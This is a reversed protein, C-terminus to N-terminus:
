KAVREYYNKLLARYELPLERAFNQNLAARNRDGLVKWETRQDKATEGSVFDSIFGASVASESDSGESSDGDGESPSAVPAATELVLAQDVIFHRLKEDALKQHGRLEALESAKFVKVSESLQSAAETLMPHSEGVGSIEALRESLKSQQESLQELLNADVSSAADASSAVDVSATQRLVQKHDSAVALADVLRVLAPDSDAVIEISPLGHLMTIVALLTEANESYVASVLEMTEAASASDGKELAVVVEQMVDVPEIFTAMGTAVLLHRASVQAGSLLKQQRELIRPLDDPNADTTRARLEDQRFQWMATDSVSKHLFAVIEAVYGTQAQIDKVLTQVEALSEAAVDQADVADFKDGSKIAAIADEFDTKAFALPTGVDLRAAVMDLLPSVDGLCRLMNGFQPLVPEMAETESAETLELLDRQEAVIDKMYGNAFGVSRQFLLLDQLLSLRENQAVVIEFAKALADASQEQWEIASDADNKELAQVSQQLWDEAEELQSLFPPLDPDVAVEDQEKLSTVFGALEDVLNQQSEAIDQVPKQEAAALDTKELYGIVRAEYEEISSMRASSAAVLTGLGQTRLGIEVSWREVVLLLNALAEEALIQQELVAPQDGAELKLLAAAMANGSKELLMDVPPVQPLREDFLESRAAPVTPLLMTALQKRLSRQVQAMSDRQAKFETESLDANEIRLQRQVAGLSGVLDRTELLTSYAGSIRVSFEADLLTRVLEAQIVAAKGLEGDGILEQTEKMREVTGADRLDKVSRILRLVALPRLQYRMAAQLDAILKATWDALEIQRESLEQTEDVSQFEIGQWRLSAQVEALMRAERAYVEQAADIGRLMVLSGLDRAATNVASSAAQPGSAMESAAAGSQQRLRDAAQAISTEAIGVLAMRLAELSDGEAVDSVNNAALDDLLVRLQSAIGKLQERVMEQRIAELQCAQAYGETTPELTRVVQHASRQQRYIAQVRSLLRDKQKEIQELYQEKSLFTIRRTESRVVHPGLPEPYRDSVEVVFSVTDGVQLDPVSERYDWDITQSGQGSEVPDELKIPVEDRQNVRYAVTTTGVGHDDQVRVALDLPRGVMAVLNASPQTLEVRPTQDAAVQLFYRPSIFEFDHDKDVWGFHYGKSASVDATFDLTRDDSGIDLDVTEEGDRFFQASRIPRDLVIRWDVGTGEPVTLTLAEISEQERGLYSPYDLSVAVEKIRPAPVVRAQQWDTRDDGAKIRYTFDRSASAITYTCTGDVVDLEIARARGEGTRVYITAQRPVIGGIQATISANEGEKIVLEDQAITIQTYTPYEVNLWPNFFRSFGAALFPGNVVSFIVMVAILLTVLVASRRLPTFPVAQEIRLDSAANEALQCTHERLESSDSLTPTQQRLQVASVLLSNLEGHQSELQLAIAVADFSRLNCWGCRWARYFAVGLIVVLIAVRGTAPMYTMWDIFMGLLFLPIACSFFALMGAFVHLIQSRYWAARIRSDLKELRIAQVTTM